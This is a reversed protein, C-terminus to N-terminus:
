SARRYFSVNRLTAVRVFRKDHSAWEAVAREVGPFHGGASDDFGVWGGVVVHPTFDAIDVAVDKYEHSGDIWLLSIPRTWAQGVEHSSARYVRLGRACLDFRSLTKCYDEWSGRHHPDISHIALQDARIQAAEVLWATMRGKWAGIEVVDGRPPAQLILYALLRCERQSCMGPISELEAMRQRDLWFRVSRARRELRYNPDVLRLLSGATRRPLRVLNHLVRSKGVPPSTVMGSAM